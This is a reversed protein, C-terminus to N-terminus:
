IAAEVLLALTRFPGCSNALIWSRLQASVLAPFTLSGGVVGLFKQTCLVQM